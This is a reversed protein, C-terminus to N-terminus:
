VITVNSVLIKSPSGISLAVEVRSVEPRKVLPWPPRGFPEFFLRLVYVGMSNEAETVAAAATWSSPMISLEALTMEDRIAELAVKAKFEPSHNKRKKM